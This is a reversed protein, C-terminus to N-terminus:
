GSAARRPASGGERRNDRDTGAAALTFGFTSGGGPASEVWIQGGHRDVIQRAIALGTGTGGGFRDRPHLRKFMRFIIGRHEPKVGIGNDMVFVRVGGGPEPGAGVVVHKKEATNFQIANRILIRIVRTILAPDCRVAPLPEITEVKAGFLREGAIADAVIQGLDANVLKPLVAALHSYDLLADLLDHMRGALADVRRLQQVAQDPMTGEVDQLLAGITLRMGRLPEKLDHAAVHTFSELDATSRALAAERRSIEQEVNAREQAADADLTGTGRVTVPEFVMVELTGECVTATIKIRIVSGDGRVAPVEISGPQRALIELGQREVPGAQPSLLDGLRSDCLEAVPRGLLRGLSRNARLIRGDPAVEAMAAPASEFIARYVGSEGPARDQDRRTQRTAEADRGATPGEQGLRPFPPETSGSSHSVRRLEGYM